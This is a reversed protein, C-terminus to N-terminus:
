IFFRIPKRFNIPHNLNVPIQRRALFYRFLILGTGQRLFFREDLEAAAELPTGGSVLLRNLNQRYLELVHSTIELKFDELYYAPHIYQINEVMIEPIEKETIVKFSIRQNEWYTKEIQMKELVRLSKLDKSYKCSIAVTSDPFDLLFDTSMIFLEGTKTLTPHKIGQKKAIQYTERYPLPFQERIDTVNPDWDFLYFTKLELKSLLHHIRGTKIGRIRTSMGLSGFDNVQVWPKYNSGTGKGRGEKIM